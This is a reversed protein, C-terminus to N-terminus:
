PQGEAPEGMEWAPLSRAVATWCELARTAAEAQARGAAEKFFASGSGTMVWGPGLHTSFETLRPDVACAARFLHNRGDGGLSDWAAYVAATSVAFGPWALAFWTEQHPLATLVEGRGTARARGGGILFPVDAGLSAAIAMLDPREAALTRLVAAADASGGGLGAGAPIRKDLRISVPRGIAAAARLALNDPGNPAPHGTVVISPGAGDEIELRDALSIAQLVTDIEHNGDPRAGRVTLELNLKAPALAM